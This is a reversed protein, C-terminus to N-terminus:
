KVAEWTPSEREEKYPNIQNPTNSKFTAEYGEDWADAKAQKLEAQLKTVENQAIILDATKTAYDSQMLRLAEIELKPNEIGQLGLHEILDICGRKFGYEVDKGSFGKTELTEEIWEEIPTHKAEM